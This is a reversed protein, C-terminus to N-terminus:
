GDRAWAKLPVDQLWSTLALKFSSPNGGCLAGSRAAKLALNIISTSATISVGCTINSVVEAVLGPTMRGTPAPSSWYMWTMIGILGFYAKSVM